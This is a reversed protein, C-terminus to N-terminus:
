HASAGDPSPRLALQERKSTARVAAADGIQLQERCRAGTVVRRKAIEKESM